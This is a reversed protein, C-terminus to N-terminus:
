GGPTAGQHGNGGSEGNGDFHVSRAKAERGGEGGGRHKEVKPESTSRRLKMRKEAEEVESAKSDVKIHNAVEEKRPPLRRQTPSGNVHSNSDHLGKFLGTLIMKVRM